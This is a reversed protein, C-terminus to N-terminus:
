LISSFHLLNEMCHTYIYIYETKNMIHNIIDNCTVNKPFPAVHISLSTEGKENNQNTGPANFNGKEDKKANSQNVNPANFNGNEDKKPKQNKRTVNKEKKKTGSNNETTQFVNSDSNLGDNVGQTDKKKKGRVHNVRRWQPICLNLNLSRLNDIIGYSNTEICKKFNKCNYNFLDLLDSIENLLILHERWNM